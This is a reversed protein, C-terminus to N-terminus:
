DATCPDPAQLPIHMQALGTHPLCGQVLSRRSADVWWGGVRLEAAWGKEAALREPVVRHQLLPGTLRRDLAALRAALRAHRERAAQNLRWGRCWWAPSRPAKSRSRAQLPTCYLTVGGLKGRPRSVRPLLSAAATSGGGFGSVSGSHAPNARSCRPPLEFGQHSISLRLQGGQVLWLGARRRRRGAHGRVERMLGNEDFWIVM